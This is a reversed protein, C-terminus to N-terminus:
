DEFLLTLLTIIYVTHFSEELNLCIYVTSNLKSLIDHIELFHIKQLDM